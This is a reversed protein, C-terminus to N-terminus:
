TKSQVNGLLVVLFMTSRHFAFFVNKGFLVQLPSLFLICNINLQDKVRFHNFKSLNDTFMHKMKLFSNSEHSSFNV